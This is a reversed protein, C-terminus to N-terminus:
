FTYKNNLNSNIKKYEKNIENDNEIAALDEEVVFDLDYNTGTISNIIEEILEAYNDNLFQKHFTMPVKIILKGDKIDILKTDKFWTDYSVTSIRNKLIDLFNIWLEENSM